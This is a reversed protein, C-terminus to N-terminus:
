KAILPVFLQSIVTYPDFECGFPYKWQTYFVSTKAYKEADQLNDVCIDFSYCYAQGKSRATNNAPDM